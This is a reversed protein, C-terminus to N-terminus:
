LGEDRRGHRARVGHAAAVVAGIREELLRLGGELLRLAHLSELADLLPQHALRHHHGDLVHPPYEAAPRAGVPELVMRNVADVLEHVYPNLRRSWSFRGMVAALRVAIRAPYTM